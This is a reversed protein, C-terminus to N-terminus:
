EPSLRFGADCLGSSDVDHAVVEEARFAAAVFFQGLASAGASEPARLHEEGQHLDLGTGQHREMGVRVLLAANNDLTLQFHADAALNADELGAVHVDDGAVHLVVGLALSVLATASSM